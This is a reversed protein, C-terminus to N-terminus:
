SELSERAVFPPLEEDEFALEVAIGAVEAAMEAVDEENVDSEEAAIRRLLSALLM